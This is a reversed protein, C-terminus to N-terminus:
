QNPTEDFVTTELFRRFTPMQDDLMKPSADTVLSVLATTNGKVAYAVVMHHEGRSRRVLEFTTNKGEVPGIRHAVWNAMRDTTARVSDEAMAVADVDATPNEDMEFRSLAGTIRVPANPLNYAFRLMPSHPVPKWTEPVIVRMEYNRVADQVREEHNSRYRAALMLALGSLGLLLVSRLAVRM